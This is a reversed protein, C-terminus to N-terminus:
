RISAAPLPCAWSISTSPTSAFARMTSMVEKWAGSANVRKPKGMSTSRRGHSRRSSGAILAAIPDAYRSGKPLGTTAVPPLRRAKAQNCPSGFCFAGIEPV